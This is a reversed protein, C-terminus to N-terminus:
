SWSVLLELVQHFDQLQAMPGIASVREELFPNHIALTPIEAAMASQVGAPSDEIALSQEASVNMAALTKLFAYPHPKRKEFGVDVTSTIESFYDRVDHNTLYTSILDHTSATCVALDIDREKAWRFLEVAGPRLPLDALIRRHTEKNISETMTAVQDATFNLEYHEALNTVSQDVGKGTHKWQVEKELKTDYHELFLDYFVSKWVPESDVLTGDFDFIIARLEDVNLSRASDPSINQQEM